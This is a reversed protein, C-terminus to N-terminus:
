RLFIPQRSYACLVTYKAAVIKSTVFFRTGGIRRLFGATVTTGLIFIIATTLNAFGQPRIAPLSPSQREMGMSSLLMNCTVRLRQVAISM